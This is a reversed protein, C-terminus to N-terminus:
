KNLRGMSRSINFHVKTKVELEMGHEECNFKKKGFMWEIGHKAFIHLLSHITYNNVHPSSIYHELFNRKVLQFKLKAIVM